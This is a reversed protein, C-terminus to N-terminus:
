PRRLGLLGAAEVVAPDDLGVARVAVVRLLEAARDFVTFNPWSAEHTSWWRLAAAAPHREYLRLAQPQTVDRNVDRNRTAVLSPRLRTRVLTRPDDLDVVEASDALELEAVALPLGRQRLMGPALRQGRFDALTEVLASAASATVYLVGYVVPNDHRGRGQFRRPFWLPTDPGETAQRNWAFCRYVIV